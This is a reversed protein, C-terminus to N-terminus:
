DDNNRRKTRIDLEHLAKSLTDYEGLTDFAEYSSNSFGSKIRYHGDEQIVFLINPNVLMRKDQCRIWM